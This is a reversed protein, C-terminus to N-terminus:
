PLEPIELDPALQTLANAFIQYIRALAAKTEGEFRLTLTPSTNSARVLGWGDTYDARIGDIRNISADEFEGKDSLMQIIDFKEEDTTKVKLEPTCIDAQVSDFLHDSSLGSQTLLEILRAGSYLADDFGYWRDAFCIHGSYEGGFPANSARIKTKIDSHGTRWMIPEGGSHEILQGLRRSCKVDFIIPAGSCHQLIDRAFLMLLRDAAIIQGRGTVVGLRDGDGDFALGIDASCDQVLACLDHMNEPEAPDPHHNPFSGDVECYLPVVECGLAEFLRPAVAGPVGNGCDVVVKLPRSVKIEGAVEAIYRDIIEIQQLSGKRGTILDKEIIRERLGIVAEQTLVKQDIVMKLGNYDSPNHSGTVMAGSRSPLVHTAYYLVPTPVQGIGIVELGADLLGETLSRQLVPSSLRGDGGVVISQQNQCLAASGLAQGLAFMVQENLQTGVLGRIDYSRFINSPIETV